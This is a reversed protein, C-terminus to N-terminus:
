AKSEAGQKPKTATTQAPTPKTATTQAPTPKAEATQAPKPKNDSTQAAALAVAKEANEKTKATVRQNVVFAKFASESVEGNHDEDLESFVKEIAANFALAGEKGEGYSSKKLGLYMCLKEAKDISQSNALKLIEEKSLKGNGDIDAEKFLMATEDAANIDNVSVEAKPASADAALETALQLKAEAEATLAEADAKEKAVKAKEAELAANEKATEEDKLRKLEDDVLKTLSKDTSLRLKGIQTQVESECTQSTVIKELRLIEEAREHAIEKSSKCGM